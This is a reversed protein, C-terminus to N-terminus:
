RSRRTTKPPHAECALRYLAWLLFGLGASVVVGLVLLPLERLFVM